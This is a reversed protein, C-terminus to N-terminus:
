VVFPAYNVAAVVAGSQHFLHVPKHFVAWRGLPWSRIGNCLGYGAVAAVMANAAVQVWWPRCGCPQPSARWVNEVAVVMIFAKECM